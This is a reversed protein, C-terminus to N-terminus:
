KANKVGDVQDEMEVITTFFTEGVSVFDKIKRRKEENKEQIFNCIKKM